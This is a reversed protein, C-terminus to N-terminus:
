PTLEWALAVRGVEAPQRKYCQRAGGNVEIIARDRHLEVLRGGNVEWLLGRHPIYFPRKRDCGFLQLPGWGLAAARDAWGGDLFRGCDDIFRLWRRSPVGGPPKNPELRALAEAWARPVGGDYEAIAAQEEQADTWSDPALTASDIQVQGGAFTAFTAFTPNPEPTPEAAKAVKAPKAARGRLAESELFARPDFKTFAHATMLTM